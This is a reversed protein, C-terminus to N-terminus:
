TTPRRPARRRRTRARARAPRCRARTPRPRGSAPPRCAAARRRTRASAASPRTGPSTGCGARSGARGSARRRQRPASPMPAPVARQHRPQQQASIAESNASPTILMAAIANTAASIANSFVHRPLPGRRPRRGATSTTSPTSSIAAGSAIGPSVTGPDSGSSICVEARRRRHAQRTPGPRSESGGPTRDSGALSRTSRGAASRAVQGTESASLSGLRLCRLCRIRTM